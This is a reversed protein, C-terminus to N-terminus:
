WDVVTLLYQIVTRIALPISATRTLEEKEVAVPRQDEFRHTSLLSFYESGSDLSEVHM